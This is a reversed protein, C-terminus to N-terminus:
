FSTTVFGAVIWVGRDFTVETEYLLEETKQDGPWSLSLDAVAKANAGIYKSFAGAQLWPSIPFSLGAWAELFYGSDSGDNFSLKRINERTERHVFDCPFAPLGIIGANIASGYLFRRSYELGFFPIDANVTFDATHFLITRTGVVNAPESFQTVFSDYRFGLIGSISPTIQYTALAQFYWMQTGTRWSREEGGSNTTYTETSRNNASFLYAGGIEFSLPSPTRIPIALETWLGQLKYSQTLKKISYAERGKLDLKLTTPGSPFMYGVSLRPAPSILSLTDLGPFSGQSQVFSPSALILIIFVITYFSTKLNM